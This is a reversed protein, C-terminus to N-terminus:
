PDQADAIVVPEDGGRLYCRVPQARSTPARGAPDIEISARGVAIIEDGPVLLVEFYRLLDPAGFMTINAGERKLLDILAEPVVETGAGLPALELKFPPQLVAEGTGDSLVFSDFEEQDLVRNWDGRHRSDAALRFGICRRQSIPSTRLPGHAVARGTLRVMAGDKVAAIAIGPVRMLADRAADRSRKLGELGERRDWAVAAAVVAVVVGVLLLALGVVM